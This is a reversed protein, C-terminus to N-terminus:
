LFGYISGLQIEVGCIAVIIDREFKVSLSFAWSLFCKMSLHAHLNWYNLCFCFCNPTTTELKFHVKKEGQTKRFKIKVCVSQSKIYRLSFLNTMKSFYLTRAFSAWLYWHGHVRPVVNSITFSQYCLNKLLLDVSSPM